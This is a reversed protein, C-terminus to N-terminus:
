MAKAVDDIMVIHGDLEDDGFPEDRVPRLMGLAEETMVRTIEEPEDDELFARESRTSTSTPKAPISRAPSEPSAEYGHRRAIRPRVVANWLDALPVHQVLVGPGAAALMDVATFGRRNKGNELAGRLVAGLLERPLWNALEPMTLAEVVDRQDILEDELASDLLYAIHERAVAAAQGTSAVNWFEGESVFQWLKQPELHRVCDDATFLEVIAEANTEGEDFALRLDAAADEWSKRLAIKERVGTTSVLIVARLEANHELGKMIASPPFHRLLDGATRRGRGLGHAIARALFRQAGDELKSVFGFAAATAHRSSADVTKSTGGDM